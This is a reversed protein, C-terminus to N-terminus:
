MRQGRAFGDKKGSKKSLKKKKVKKPTSKQRLNLSAKHRAQRVDGGTLIVGKSSFGAVVTDGEVAIQIPFEGNSSSLGLSDEGSHLGLNDVLCTRYVETRSQVDIVIAFLSVVESIDPGFWHGALDDVDDAERINESVRCIAIVHAKRLAILHCVELNGLLHLMKLTSHCCNKNMPYFTVISKKTGHQDCVLNDAVVVEYDLMLVPRKRSQRLTWHDELIENRVIDTGLIFSSHHVKGSPDVSLSTIAPSFNSLSVIKYCYHGNEEMKFTALTMEQNLPGLLTSSPSSDSMWTIANACTSFLFLKRFVLIDIGEQEDSIDGSPIAIAVEIMFRGYGCEVLNHSVLVEIDDLNGDNSLFDNILLLGHDVDDCSLLFNLISQRIDIVQMANDDSDDDILFEDRSLVTLIFKEDESVDNMMRLLCGIYDTDIETAVLQCNRKKTKKYPDVCRCILERCLREGTSESGEISDFLRLTCDQRYAAVFSNEAWIKVSVCNNQAQASNRSSEFSRISGDFENMSKRSLLCDIGKKIGNIDRVATYHSVFSGRLTLLIDEDREHKLTPIPWSRRQLLHRWLNGSQKGIERNWSRSVSSMSAVASDDLFSLIHELISASLTMSNINNDAPRNRNTSTQNRGLRLLESEELLIGKRYRDYLLQNGVAFYVISGVNCSQKSMVDVILHSIPISSPHDEDSYSAMLENMRFSLYYLMDIAEVIATNDGASIYAPCSNESSFIVEESISIATERDRDHLGTPFLVDNITSYHKPYHAYRCNYSKKGASGRNKQTSDNCKGFFFHSRCLMPKQISVNESAEGSSCKNNNHTEKSRPHFKKKRHCTNKNNKASRASGDNEFSTSKGQRGFKGNDGDHKSNRKKNAHGEEWLQHHIPYGDESHPPMDTWIHITPNMDRGIAYKSRFIQDANRNLFSMLENAQAKFIKREGNRQKRHKAELRRTESMEARREWNGQVM